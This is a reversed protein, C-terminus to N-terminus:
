EVYLARLRDISSTSKIKAQQKETMFYTPVQLDLVNVTKNFEFTFRESLAEEVFEKLAESVNIKGPTGNSEMQNGILVDMGWFDYRLRGSGIVGGVCNGFHLGIRMNLDPVSVENAVETINDLMSQSMRISIYTFILRESGFM